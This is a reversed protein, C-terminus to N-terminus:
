PHARRIGHPYQVGCGGQQQDLVVGPVGQQHALREGVAPQRHVDGPAPGEGLRAGEEFTATGRGHADQEVQVQRVGLAQVGYPEHALVVGRGGDHHEGPEGLVLGPEGRDGRAGLVEEGLVAEARLGEAAGHAVGQM